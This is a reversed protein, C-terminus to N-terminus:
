PDHEISASVPLNHLHAFHEHHVCFYRRSNKCRSLVRCPKIETKCTRLTLEPPFNCKGMELEEPKPVHVNFKIKRNEQLLVRFEPRFYRQFVAKSLKTAQLAMKELIAKEELSVQVM